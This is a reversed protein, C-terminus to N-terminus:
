NGESRYRIETTGDTEVRDTGTINLIQEATLELAPPVVLAWRRPAVIRNGAADTQQSVQQFAAELASVSLAPNGTAINGNGASFNTASLLQKTAEHDEKVAARRGFESFARQILGFNRTSRLLEWSFQVAVGSKKLKLNQGAAEFRLRAY